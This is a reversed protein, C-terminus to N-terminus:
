FFVHLVIPPSGQPFHAPLGPRFVGSGLEIHVRASWLNKAVVGEARRGNGWRKVAGGDRPTKDAGATSNDVNRVKHIYKLEGPPFNFWPKEEWSLQTPASNSLPPPLFFWSIPAEKWRAALFDTKNVVLHAMLYPDSGLVAFNGNSGAAAPESPLSPTHRKM